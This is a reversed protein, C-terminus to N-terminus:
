EGGQLVVGRVMIEVMKGIRGDVYKENMFQRKRPVFEHVRDRNGCGNMWIKKDVSPIKENIYKDIIKENGNMELRNMVNM